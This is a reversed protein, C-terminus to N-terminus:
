WALVVQLAKQHNLYLLDTQTDQLRNKLITRFDSSMLYGFCCKRIGKYCKHLAQFTLSFIVLCQTVLCESLITLIILRM